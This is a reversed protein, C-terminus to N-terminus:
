TAERGELLGAAGLILAGTCVSGIVEAGDAAARVYEVIADNVMARMTGTVGGPVILVAPRPADALTREPVVALGADTATPEIREGVTIVTFRGTAELMKLVQLPGVLDLLTMGPYVLFAILKPNSM